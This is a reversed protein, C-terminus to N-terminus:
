SSCKYSWSARLGSRAFCRNGIIGLVPLARVPASPLPTTLLITPWLVAFLHLKPLAFANHSPQHLLSLDLILRSLSGQRGKDIGFFRCPGREPSLEPLQRLSQASRSQLTRRGGIRFELNHQLFETFGSGFFLFPLFCGKVFQIRFDIEALVRTHFTEQCQQAIQTVFCVQGTTADRAQKTTIRSEETACASGTPWATETNGAASATETSEATTASKAGETVSRAAKITAAKIATAKSGIL